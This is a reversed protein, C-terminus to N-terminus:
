SKMGSSILFDLFHKQPSQLYCFDHDKDTLFVSPTIGKAVLAAEAFQYHQHRILGDCKGHVMGVPPIKESSQAVIIDTVRAGNMQENTLANSYNLGLYTNATAKTRSTAPSGLGYAAEMDNDYAWKLDIPAAWSYACKIAVDSEGSVGGYTTNSVTLNRGNLSTLDRSLTAALAIGGGASHGTMAIRNSNIAYTGDGQSGKVKLFRAAKKACILFSPFMGSGETPWSPKSLVLGIYNTGLVYDITCVAFGQSLLWKAWGLNMDGRSGSTFFGGHIWMVVPWGNEPPTGNPVRLTMSRQSISSAGALDYNVDYQSFNEFVFERDRDTWNNKDSTNLSGSIITGEELVEVENGNVIEYWKNSPNSPHQGATGDLDYTDFVELDGIWINPSYGGTGSKTPHRGLMFTDAAVNTPNGTITLSATTSNWNYIKITVKPNMASNVQIEVRWTSSSTMQFDLNLTSLISGGATYTSNAIFPRNIRYIGTFPARESYDDWMLHWLDSGAPGGNMFTILNPFQNVWSNNDEPTVYFRCSYVSLPVTLSENPYQNFRWYARASISRNAYDTFALGRAYTSRRQASRFNRAYYIKTSGPVDNVAPLTQFVEIPYPSRIAGGGPLPFIPPTVIVDEPHLGMIKTM